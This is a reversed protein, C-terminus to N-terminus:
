FTEWNDTGTKALTPADMLAGGPKAKFAPRTVNKARDPGRREGSPVNAAPTAVHAM